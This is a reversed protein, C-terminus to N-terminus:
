IKIFRLWTQPVRLGNSKLVEIILSSRIAVANEVTIKRGAGNDSIRPQTVSAQMGVVCGDLDFVPGGSMGFLGFDRVLIGDHTRLKGKGDGSQAKVKDLTFTPQFYRRVGGVDIGGLTNPVIQALPYGSICVSRGIQPVTSSLMTPKTERLEIKGIFIDNNDDVAIKRIPLQPNLVEDPVRGFYLFQTDSDKEDFIHAVTVFTGSSDVFFGTGVVGIQTSNASIKKTRFIPFISNQIKSIAKVFM